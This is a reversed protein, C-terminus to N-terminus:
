NKRIKITLVGADTISHVAEHLEDKQGNALIVTLKTGM